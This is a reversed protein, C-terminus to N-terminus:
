VGFTEQVMQSRSNGFLRGLHNTIIAGSYIVPMNTSLTAQVSQGTRLRIIKKQLAIKEFSLQEGFSSKQWTKSSEYNQADKNALTKTIHEM